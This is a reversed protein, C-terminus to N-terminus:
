IAAEFAGANLAPLARFSATFLYFKLAVREISLTAKKNSIFSKSHVYYFSNDYSM